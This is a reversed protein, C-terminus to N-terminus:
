NHPEQLPCPHPLRNNIPQSGASSGDLQPHLTACSLSHWSQTALVCLTGQRVRGTEYVWGYMCLAHMCSSYRFTRVCRLVVNATGVDGHTTLRLTDRAAAMVVTEGISSLDRCIRAYESSPMTVSADVEQDPVDLAESDISLLKLDFDWVRDQKKSEFMLTLVDGHDDAKMTVIDDNGARHSMCSRCLVHLMCLSAACLLGVLGCFMYPSVLWHHGGACKLAKLLNAVNVGMSMPRDCRYQEFGDSKLDLVVLCVHSGDMAQMWLLLPVCPLGAHM